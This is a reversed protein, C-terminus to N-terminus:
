HPRAGARQRSRRFTTVRSPPPTPIGSGVSTCSHRHIPGTGASSTSSKHCVPCGALSWVDAAINTKDHKSIGSVAGLNFIVSEKGQQQYPTFLRLVQVVSHLVNKWFRRLQYSINGWWYQASAMCHHGMMQLQPMRTPTPSPARPWGGRWNAGSINVLEALNLPFPFM